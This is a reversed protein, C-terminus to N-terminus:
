RWQRTRRRREAANRRATEAMPGKGGPQQPLPHTKMGEGGERGDEGRRYPSVTLAGPTEDGRPGEAERPTSEDQSLEFGGGEENPTLDDQWLEVGRGM